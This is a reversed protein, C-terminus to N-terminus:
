SRSQSFSRENNGNELYDVSSKLSSLEDEKLNIQDIRREVMDVIKGSNEKSLQQFQPLNRKWQTFGFINLLINYIWERRWNKWLGIRWNVFFIFSGKLIKQFELIIILM